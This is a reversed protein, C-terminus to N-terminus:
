SADPEFFKEMATEDVEPGSLDFQATELEIDPHDRIIDRAEQFLPALRARLVTDKGPVLACLLCFIGSERDELHWLLEEVKEDASVLKGTKMNRYEYVASQVVTVGAPRSMLRNVKSQFAAENKDAERKVASRSKGTLRAVESYSLGFKTRSIRM